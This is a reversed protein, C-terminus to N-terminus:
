SSKAISAVQRRIRQRRRRVPLQKRSNRKAKEKVLQPVAMSDIGGVTTWKGGGPNWKGREITKAFLIRNRDVGFINTSKDSAIVAICGFKGGLPTWKESQGNKGTSVVLRYFAEGAADLAVLHIGSKTPETAAVLQSFKGRLNQWAVKRDVKDDSLQMYQVSNNKGLAFLHLENESSRVVTVDGSVQGGLDTWTPTQTDGDITWTGHAVHNNDTRGFVDVRGRLTSSFTFGEPFVPGGIEEWMSRPKPLPPVRALIRRLIKGNPGWILIHTTSKTGGAAGRGKHHVVKTAFARAAQAISIHTSLGAVEIDIHGFLTYEVGWPGSYVEFPISGPTDPLQIAPSLM